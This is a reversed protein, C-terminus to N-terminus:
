RHCVFREIGAQRLFGVFYFCRTGMCISISRTGLSLRLFTSQTAFCGSAADYDRHDGRQGEGRDMAAARARGDGRQAELASYQEASPHQPSGWRSGPQGRMATPRTSGIIGCCRVVMRRALLRSACEPTRGRSMTTMFDSNWALVSIQRDSRVAMADVDAKARVGGAVMTQASVSASSETGLGIRGRM